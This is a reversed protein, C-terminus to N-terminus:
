ADGKVKAGPTLDIIIIYDSKCVIAYPNGTLPPAERKHLVRGLSVHRIGDNAFDNKNM